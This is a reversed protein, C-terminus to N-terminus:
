GPSQAASLRECWDAVSQLDATADAKSTPAEPRRCPATALRAALRDACRHVKELMQVPTEAGEARRYLNALKRCWAGLRKCTTAPRKGHYDVQFRRNYNILGARYADFTRQKATLDRLSEGPSAAVAAAPVNEWTAELEVVAALATAQAASMEAFPPHDVAAQREPSAAIM